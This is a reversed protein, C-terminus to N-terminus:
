QLCRLAIPGIKLLVRYKGNIATKTTSEPLNRENPFYLLVWIDENTLSSFTTKGVMSSTAGIWGMLVCAQM